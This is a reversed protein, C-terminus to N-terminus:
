IRTCQSQIYVYLGTYMRTYTCHHKNRAYTYVRYIPKCVRIYEYMLTKDYSYVTNYVSM